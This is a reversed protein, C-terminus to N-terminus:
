AIEKDARRTLELICGAVRQLSVQREVGGLEFAARPMGYVVCSAKDQGLTRAGAQRMAQLGRAGDAGMGTLIVGVANSKAVTAISQFLVDVSPRHENVPNGARLCCRPGHTGVIELHTSGGPALYVKGATLPAGDTAEQVDPASARNLREALSRTFTPPMHQTIVTPPCNTPFESLICLLAEVGGTSSGIAVIKGNPVFAASSGALQGTAVSPPRFARMQVQAAAKVTEPLSSFTDPSAPTPKAVCDFAGMELAAITAEAGHRTLTSVMIVPMPRLRMIKELFDLGNMKPLQIDLTIVDPNLDKIAQRAEIPDAAEGVVEIGGDRRLCMAILGRMTASDDVILVRVTM